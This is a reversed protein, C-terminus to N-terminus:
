VTRRLLTLQRRTVMIAQNISYLEEEIEDYGFIPHVDAGGFICSRLEELKEDFLNELFSLSLEAIEIQSIHSAM